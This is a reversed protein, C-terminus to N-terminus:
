QLPQVEYSDVPLMSKSKCHDYTSGVAIGTGNSYAYFAQFLEKLGACDHAELLRALRMCNATQGAADQVLHRLLVVNLSERVERNPYGLRYLAM